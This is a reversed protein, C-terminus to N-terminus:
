VHNLSGVKRELEIGKSTKMWVVFNEAIDRPKPYHKDNKVVESYQRMYKDVDEDEIRYLYSVILMARKEDTTVM